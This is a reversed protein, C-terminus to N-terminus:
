IFHFLIIELHVQVGIKSGAVILIYLAVVIRGYSIHFLILKKLICIILVFINAPAVAIYCYMVCDFIVHRISVILSYDNDTSMQIKRTNTDINSYVVDATETGATQSDDYLANVQVDRHM